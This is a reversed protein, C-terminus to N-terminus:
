WCSQDDEGHSNGWQLTILQIEHRQKYEYSRSPVLISQKEYDKHKGSIPSKPAHPLSYGGGESM